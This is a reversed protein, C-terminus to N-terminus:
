TCRNSKIGNSKDKNEVNDFGTWLSSSLQIYEILLPNPEIIEM